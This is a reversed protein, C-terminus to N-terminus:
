QVDFLEKLITRLIKAKVTIIIERNRSSPLYSLPYGICHRFNAHAFFFSADRHRDTSSM